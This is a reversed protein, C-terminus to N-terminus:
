GESVLAASSFAYWISDAIRVMDNYDERVDGDSSRAAARIFSESTLMRGLSNDRLMRVDSPHLAITVTLEIM